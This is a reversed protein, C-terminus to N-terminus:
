CRVRRDHDLVPGIPLHGAASGLRHSLTKRGLRDSLIGTPLALLGTALPAMSAVQGIFDEQYSLRLLYLNYLLSFLAMGANISTGFAFFLRVNRNFERLRFRSLAHGVPMRRPTKDFVEVAKQAVIKATHVREAFPLAMGTEITFALGYTHAAFDALNLGEGRQQPNLWFVSHPGTLLFLDPYIIARSRPTRRFRRGRRDDRRGYSEEWQQDSPTRQHRASFWFFDGGHEHLDLTLGPQIAAMLDRTCRSEVPAWPTDHFRNLHLVEGTPDIVLTYAREVGPNSAAFYLRRGKLAEIWDGVRHNYLNSTAYGYEGILAVVAEGEEYLVEGHKKLLPAVDDLGGLPPAEDLSLGLAYALGNM